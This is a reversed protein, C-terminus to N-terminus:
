YYSLEFDDVWLTSGVALQGVVSTGSFEGGYRSSTAVITIKDPRKTKDTYEIPLEFKTYESVTKNDVFHAEAIKTDGSWLMVYIDCEDSSLTRDSPVTAGSRMTEGPTYKYYGSLKTPRAGTYSRGFTVSSAPDTMSTSYNGIFINGAAYGVLSVDVTSLKAAKGEFADSSEVPISNSSKITVVGENGTAWYSNSQDSNPYWCDRKTFLGKEVSTWVNFDLNPIEEYSETTFSTTEGVKGGCEIYYEYETGFDLPAVKATYNNTEGEKTAAITSWEAADKKKYYFQVPATADTLNCQGSLYAFQGWVKSIDSSINTTVMDTSEIQTPVKLTVEYQHITPDFVIDIGQSGSAFDLNVNYRIAAEAKATIQQTFVKDNEFVIKVSLAQGAKVYASRTETVSFPISLNSEGEITCTFTKFANKFNDLYNVKVLSQALTCAVDVVKAQNAVISVNETVGEYYPEADFGQAEKDKDFSYAKVTYVGVPLVVGESSSNLDNWDDVHKAVEGDENLIDVAIDETDTVDARSDVTKNVEVSSLQLYGYGSVSEDLESQCSSLLGAALMIGALIIKNTKM